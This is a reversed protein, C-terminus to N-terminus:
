FLASAMAGAATNLCAVLVLRRLMAAGFPLYLLCAVPVHYANSSRTM